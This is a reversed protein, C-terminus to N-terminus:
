GKLTSILTGGMGSTAIITDDETADKNTTASVTVHVALIEETVEMRDKGEDTVKHRCVEMSRAHINLNQEQAGLEAEGNVSDYKCQENEARLNQEKRGDEILDVAEVGDDSKSDKL